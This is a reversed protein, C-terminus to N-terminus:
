ESSGKVESLMRCGYYTVGFPTKALCGCTVLQLSLMNVKATMKVSSGSTHLTALTRYIM